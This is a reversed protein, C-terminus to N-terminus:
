ATIHMIQIYNLINLINIWEQVRISQANNLLTHGLLLGVFSSVFPLLKELRVVGIKKVIPYRSIQGSDPISYWREELDALQEDDRCVTETRWKTVFEWCFVQCLVFSLAAACPPTCCNCIAGGVKNVQETALGMYYAWWIGAALLQFQTLHLLLWTRM